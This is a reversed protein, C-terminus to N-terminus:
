RGPEKLSPLATTIPGDRVAVHQTSLGAVEGGIEMSRRESEVAQITGTLFGANGCFCRHFARGSKLEVTGDCVLHGRGCRVFSSAACYPCYFGSWNYDAINDASVPTSAPTQQQGPRPLSTSSPTSPLVQAAVRALWGGRKPGPLQRPEAASNLMAANASPPSSESPEHTPHVAAARKVAEIAFQHLPSRRSFIVTFRAGSKGCRFEIESLEITEPHFWQADCTPCRVQGRRGDPVRLGGRGCGPCTLIPL